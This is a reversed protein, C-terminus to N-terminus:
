LPYFMKLRGVGKINIKFNTRESDGSIIFSRIVPPKGQYPIVATLFRIKQDPTSKRINYCFAPRPEKQTYRFSVQGEEQNLTMGKQGAAQVLVNWGDPFDSHVSHDKQNIVAKGPALQFHLDIEGTADGIAEDMILFFKKDVFFVARRHTLGPYSGNRVVLVDLKDGPKWLLLEPAYKSDAGNLTMTQHVKTQRFWKRGEPDGSYIYSGADPMLNRGGAYLEFTGNDPQCHGGGDPGCKLILCVADKEWGSRMSYFGSVPYAWATSDPKIGERGESAVYLFDKRDFMEAWEKLKGYYQGPQGAWSDGFQTSSGDPFSLKVPVECMREIIRLYSDPFADTIGNMQALDQTRLFWEICGMHYGIALERQFGDPYVQINIEANLRRFAERRWKESDKFEPFTVAIFALGEAEMLGWNSRTRYQTMLFSAHDYMSNLFAVLVETNFHESDIFHQYLGTWSHGRIGAEISRWAYNHEKDNPNKKIWDVIQLCWEKAYKDNGTHTYVMAMADWFYMRNLQWVWENDPVPRIGWDINDGCFVPPYARQGVFIHKLANDAMILDAEPIVSGRMETEMLRDAPHKVTSRSKYYNLLQPAVVAPNGYSRKVTQMEAKNLDLRSLLRYLDVSRVKNEQIGEAPILNVSVFLLIILSLFEKMEKVYLHLTM